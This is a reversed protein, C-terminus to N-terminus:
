IRNPQTASSHKTKINKEQLLQIRTELMSDYWSYPKLKQAEYIIGWPCLQGILLDLTMKMTQRDRFTCKGIPRYTGQKDQITTRM